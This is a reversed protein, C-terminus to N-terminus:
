FGYELGVFLLQNRHSIKTAPDPRSAAGSFSSSYDEFQLRGIYSMRQSKKMKLYFGFDTINESSGNGSKPNDSVSKTIFLRFQAGLSWVSGPQLTTSGDFGVFMGGYQMRTFAVTPSSKAPDSTWQHLGASFQLKPGYFDGELLWNYGGALTYSSLTTTLNKPSDTSIPNSLTFASQMLGLSIFWEPDLWLEGELKLTPSIQSSATVDGETVLNASQNYQGVGALISLKGFQPPGRETWEQPNEGFAPDTPLSSQNPYVISRNSIVKSGVLIVGPEKEFTIKAFSLSNEVKTILLKGLVTKESSIIFRHKPHRQIKLIQIVEIVQGNKLNKSSGIDITVEQGRRSLVQGDYPLRSLVLEYLSIFEKSLIDLSETKEIQKSEQILIEGLPKSYFTIRLSIGSPGRLVRASILADTKSSSIINLAQNAEYFDTDQSQSLITVAWQQDTNIKKILLESLPKSYIGSVNDIVNAVAVKEIKLNMDEQSLYETKTGVQSWALHSLLSMFIFVCNIRM